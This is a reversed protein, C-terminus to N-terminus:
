VNGKELREILDCVASENNSCVEIKAAAKAAHSANKVAASIHALALMDADNDNDGIAIVRDSRINLLGCLKKLANGKSAGKNLVEYFKAHTRMGKFDRLYEGDAMTEKIRNILSPAGAFLLKIWTEEVEDFDRPLKNLNEIERHYATYENEKILYVHRQTVLNLGIDPFLRMIFHAASVARQKDLELSWLYKDSAYDYICAGNLCVIPANPVTKKACVIGYPARGSAFTFIGGESKFYEIAEANEGSVNNSDDLLTGDVDSLLLYGDFKGM